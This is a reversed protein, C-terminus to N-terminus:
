IGFIFKANRTTASDVDESTMDLIDAIKDNIYPINASENRRGRKPVPSLWPADTELVIRDIGIEKVSEPVMGSNKFTVVGNIGFYPDCVSRIKRVDDPTGTFSHFVLIPFDYTELEKKASVICECCEDVADRCHVIVPLNENAALILQAIFAEKQLDLNSDGYHLDIGVEGIAVPRTPKLLEVIESVEKKWDSEVETPHLGMATYTSEPCTNHLSAVLPASERDVSPLIMKNVGASVARGVAKVCGDPGDDLYDNMYLHTHTDIM